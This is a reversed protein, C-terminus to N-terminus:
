NRLFNESEDQSFGQNGKSEKQKKSDQKQSLKHIKVNSFPVTLRNKSKKINKKVKNEKVLYLKKGEM